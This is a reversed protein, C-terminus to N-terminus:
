SIAELSHCTHFLLTVDAPPEAAGAQKRRAAPRTAAVPAPSRARPSGKELEQRLAKVRDDFGDPHYDSGPEDLQDLLDMLADSHDLRTGAPLRVFTMESWLLALLRQGDATRMQMEVVLNSNDFHVVQTRIRVLM